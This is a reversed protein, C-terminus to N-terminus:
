LTDEGVHTFIKQAQESPSVDGKFYWKSHMTFQLLELIKLPKKEAKLRVGNRYLESAHLDV